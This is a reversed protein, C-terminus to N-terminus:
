TSELRRDEWRDIEREEKAEQRRESISFTIYGKSGCLACLEGDSVGTGGCDECDDCGEDAGMHLDIERDTCGDPLNSM